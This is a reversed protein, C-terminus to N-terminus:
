ALQFLLVHRHHICKGSDVWRQANSQQELAIIDMRGVRTLCIDHPGALANLHFGDLPSGDAQSPKAIFVHWDSNTAAVLPVVEQPPVCSRSSLTLRLVMGNMGHLLKRLWPVRNAIAVHVPVPSSWRPWVVNANRLRDWRNKLDGGAASSWSAPREVTNAFKCAM